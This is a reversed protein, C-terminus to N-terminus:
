SSLPLSFDSLHKPPNLLTFPCQFTDLDVFHSTPTLCMSPFACSFFAPFVCPLFFCDFFSNPVCPLFNCPVCTLFFISVLGSSLFYSLFSLLLSCTLFSVLFNLLPAGFSLFFLLLLFVFVSPHCSPCLM